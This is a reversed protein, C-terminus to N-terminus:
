SSVVSIEFARRVRAADGDEAANMAETWVWPPLNDTLAERFTEIVTPSPADYIWGEVDDVNGSFEVLDKALGEADELARRIVDEDFEVKRPNKKHQLMHSLAEIILDLSKGNVGPNIDTGFNWPKRKTEPKSM